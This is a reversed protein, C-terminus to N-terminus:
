CRKELLLWAHRRVVDPYGRKVIVAIEDMHSMLPVARESAQGRPVNTARILGVANGMRHRYTEDCIPALERECVM